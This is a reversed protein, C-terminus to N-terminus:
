LAAYVTLSLKGKVRIRSRRHVPEDWDKYYTGEDKCIEEYDHM